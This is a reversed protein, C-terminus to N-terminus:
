PDLVCVGYCVPVRVRAREVVGEVVYPVANLHNYVCVIARHLEVDGIGLVQTGDSVVAVTNARNTLAFSEAKNNAIALSVAAVGPTYAISLDDVSELPMKTYMGVKGRTERHRKISVADYDM